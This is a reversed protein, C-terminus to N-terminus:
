ILISCRIGIKKPDISKFLHKIEKALPEKLRDLLDAALAEASVVKM